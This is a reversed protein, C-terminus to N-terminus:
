EIKSLLFNPPIPFIFNNKSIDRLEQRYLKLKELNDPTIPYDSLMYIDSELLLKNRKQRAMNNYTQKTNPDLEPPVEDPSNYSVILPKSLDQEEM